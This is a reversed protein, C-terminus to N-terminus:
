DSAQSQEAKKLLEVMQPAAKRRERKLIREYAAPMAAMVAIGCCGVAVGSAMLDMALVMALGLGMVLTGGLGFCVATATARRTVGQDIARMAALQGGPGEPSYRRRLADIERQEVATYHYTARNERDPM